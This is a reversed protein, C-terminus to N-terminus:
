QLRKLVVRWHEKPDSSKLYLTDGNLFYARKYEKLRREPRLNGEVIHTVTNTEMEANYTGFYSDYTDIWTRNEESTWSNKGIGLGTSNGDRTMVSDSMYKVRDNPWCFQVSMRGNSTYILSGFVSTDQKLVQGASDMQQDAVFEWTGILPNQKESCASCILIAAVLYKRFQNM